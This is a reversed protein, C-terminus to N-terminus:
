ARAVGRDTVVRLGQAGLLDASHPTLYGFSVPSTSARHRRTLRARKFTHVDEGGDARENWRALRRQGRARRETQELHRESARREPGGRASRARVRSSRHTHCPRPHVRLHERRTMARSRENAASLRSLRGRAGASRVRLGDAARRATTVGRHDHESQARNANTRESSRSRVASEVLRRSTGGARLRSPVDRKWVPPASENLGRRLLDLGLRGLRGM